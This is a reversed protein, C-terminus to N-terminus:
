ALNENVPEGSIVVRYFVAGPRADPRSGPCAVSSSQGVCLCRSVRRQQDPQHNPATGSIARLTSM